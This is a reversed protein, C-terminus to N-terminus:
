HNKNGISNFTILLGEKAKIPLDGISNKLKHNNVILETNIKKFNKEIQPNLFKSSVKILWVLFRKNIGIFITRRKTSQNIIRILEYLSIAEDDTVNYIGSPIDQRSILENISYILNDLSCYSRKNYICGLIWPLRRSTYNFLHHFTGNQGIGHVMTPRLIYINRGEISNNLIYSEADLKSKGYYSMPNPKTEETVPISSEEVVAKISSLFIFTKAKSELFKDFVQKTFIYNSLNFKEIDLENSKSPKQGAFHCVIQEEINIETNRLHKKFSYVHSYEQVFYNGIFGTSGTIFIEKRPM